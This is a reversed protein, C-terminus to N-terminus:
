KNWVFLYCILCFGEHINWSFKCWNRFKLLTCQFCVTENAWYPNTNKSMVANIVNQTFMLRMCQQWQRQWQKRRWQRCWKVTVTMTVRKQVVIMMVWKMRWRLNKMFYVSQFGSDTLGILALNGTKDELWGHKLPDWEDICDKHANTWVHTVFNVRAIEQELVCLYPSPHSPWLIQTKDSKAKSEKTPDEQILAHPSCPERRQVYGKAMATFFTISANSVWFLSPSVLFNTFSIKGNSFIRGSWKTTFCWFKVFLTDKGMRQLALIRVSSINIGCFNLPSMTLQAFSTGGLYFYDINWWMYIQTYAM